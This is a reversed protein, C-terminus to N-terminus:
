YVKDYLSVKVKTKVSARSINEIEFIIDGDATTVAYYRGTGDEEEVDTVKSASIMNITPRYDEVEITLHQGATVGIVFTKKEGGGLGVEVSGESAGKRFRIRQPGDDTIEPTEEPEEMPEDAAAADDGPTESDIAKSSTEQDSTSGASDGTETDPALGGCAMLVTVLVFIGLINKM